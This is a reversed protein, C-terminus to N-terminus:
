TPYEEMTVTVTITFNGVTDNNNTQIAIAPGGTLEVKSLMFTGV